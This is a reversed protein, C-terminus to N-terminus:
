QTKVATREPKERQPLAPPDSDLGSAAAGRIARHHPIQTQNSKNGQLTQEAARSRCTQFAVLFAALSAVGNLSAM